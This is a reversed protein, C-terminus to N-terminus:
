IENIEKVIPKLLQKLIKRARHVRIKVLNLDLNLVDAIEDYTMEEYERLIIVEKYSEPLKDISKDIFEKLIFDENYTQPRTGEVFEVYERKSRHYNLCTNKAIKFIYAKFKIESYSERHEYIKIFTEQMADKALSYDGLIKLCYRFISNAHKDYLIRFADANGDKLKQIFDESEKEQTINKKKFFM